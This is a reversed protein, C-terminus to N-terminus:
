RHRPFCPSTSRRPCAQCSNEERQRKTIQSLILHTPMGEGYCPRHDASNARRLALLPM